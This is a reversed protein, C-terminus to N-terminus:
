TVGGVGSAAYLSVELGLGLRGALEVLQAPFHLFYAPKDRQAVGFDLVGGHVGVEARIASVAVLEETLFEIADTVQTRFDDFGAESVELQIGSHDFPVGKGDPEGKRWWDADWGLRGLLPEPDFDGFIRLMCSM